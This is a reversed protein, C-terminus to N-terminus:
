LELEPQKSIQRKLEENEKTLNFLLIDKKLIDDKYGKVLGTFAAIIDKESLVTKVTSSRKPNDTVSIDSEVEICQTWPSSEIVHNDTEAYKKKSSPSRLVNM